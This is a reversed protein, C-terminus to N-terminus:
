SSSNGSRKDVDLPREQTQGLKRSELLEKLERRAKFLQGQLLLIAVELLAIAGLLVYVTTKSVEIVENM